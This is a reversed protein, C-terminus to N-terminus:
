FITSHMSKYSFSDCIKKTNSYSITEGAKSIFSIEKIQINKNFNMQKKLYEQSNNFLLNKYSNRTSNYNYYINNKEEQEFSNNSTKNKQNFILDNNYYKKINNNSTSHFFNIKHIINSKLPTKLSKISKSKKFNTFFIFLM